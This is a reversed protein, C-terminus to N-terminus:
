TPSAGRALSVPSVSRLPWGILVPRATGAALWATGRERGSGAPLVRLMQSIM